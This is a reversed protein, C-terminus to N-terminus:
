QKFAHFSYEQSAHIRNSNIKVNCPITLANLTLVSENNKVHNRKRM